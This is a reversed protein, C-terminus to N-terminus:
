RKISMSIEYPLDDGEHDEDFKEALNLAEEKLKEVFKNWQHVPINEIENNNKDKINFNSITFHKGEDSVFNASDKMSPNWTYTGRMNKYKGNDFIESYGKIIYTRPKYKKLVPLIFAVVQGRYFDTEKFFSSTHHWEEPNMIAKIAKSSVSFKKSISSIPYLGSQQAEFARRSISSGIYGGRSYDVDDPKWPITHKPDAWKGGRPGIYQRRKILEKKIIRILVDNM